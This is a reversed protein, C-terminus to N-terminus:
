SSRHATADITAIQGSLAPSRIKFNVCGVDVTIISIGGGQIRSIRASPRQGSAVSGSQPHNSAGRHRCATALRGSM